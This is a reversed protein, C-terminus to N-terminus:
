FAVTLSCLPWSRMKHKQWVPYRTGMVVMAQSCKQLELEYPRACAELDRGERGCPEELIWCVGAKAPRPARAAACLSSYTSCRRQSKTGGGQQTKHALILGQNCGAVQLAFSSSGWYDVLLNNCCSADPLFLSSAAFSPSFLQTNAARFLQIGRVFM